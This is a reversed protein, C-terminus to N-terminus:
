FRARGSSISSARREKRHLASNSFMQAPKRIWRWKTQSTVQTVMRFRRARMLWGLHKTAIFFYFFFFGLLFPPLANKVESPRVLADCGWVTEWRCNVRQMHISTTRVYFKRRLHFWVGMLPHKCRQQTQRPFFFFPATDFCTQGGYLGCFKQISSSKIHQACKLLEKFLCRVM